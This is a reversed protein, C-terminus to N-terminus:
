AVHQDVARAGRVASGHAPKGNPALAKTGGHPKTPMTKKAPGKPGPAAGPAEVRSRLGLRIPGHQM